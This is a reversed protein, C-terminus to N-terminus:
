RAHLDDRNWHKEGIVAESISFLEDLEKAAAMRLVSEKHVLDQLYTRILGTLSTDKDIALKRAKKLLEEDISLTINPM